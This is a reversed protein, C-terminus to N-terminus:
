VGYRLMFIDIACDHRPDHKVTIDPSYKVDERIKCYGNSSTECLIDVATRVDRYSGYNAIPEVGASRALSDIAVQDLSGRIWITNDISSHEKLYDKLVQIGEVASLDFASISLSRKKPLEHQQEWWKLTDATVTRKYKKVQEPASFKVFISRKILEEYTFDEKASWHILSASLVVSNSEVGLTEIDFAFM